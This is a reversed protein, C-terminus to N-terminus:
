AVSQMGGEAAIARGLTGQAASAALAVARYVNTKGVGNAGVIVTCQGFPLHLDRLSRYRKVGLSKLLVVRADEQELM